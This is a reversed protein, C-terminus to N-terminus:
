ALMSFASIITLNVRAGPAACVTAERPAPREKCYCAESHM